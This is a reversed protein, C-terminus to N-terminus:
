KGSLRYGAGRVTQILQDHGSPTLAKRLRRIHVDVTREEVYVHDGWVQDLVQTRTYVKDPNSMFFQLLRFETPGMEIEEDNYQVRHAATDLVLGQIELKEHNIDENRSRRLLAHIRAILARPSFPKTIYDDAGSELGKILDEEETKATLMIIPLHQTEEHRRLKRTFDVGSLGPMMWDLLLIDPKNEKIIAEAKHADSAELCRFGEKELAMMVMDRIAYEDDIILVTAQNNSM